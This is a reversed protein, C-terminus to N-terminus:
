IGAQLLKEVRAILEFVDFPKVMYYTGAESKEPDADEELLGSLVIIPTNKFRADERVKMTFHWGSMVPMTLDVIMLDPVETKLAKLAAAGDHATMVEYGHKSLAQQILFVLDHDDDLVLIKKPM